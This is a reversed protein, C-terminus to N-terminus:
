LEGKAPPHNIIELCFFVLSLTPSFVCNWTDLNRGELDRRKGQSGGKRM